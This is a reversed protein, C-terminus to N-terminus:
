EVAKELTRPNSGDLGFRSKIVQNFVGHSFSLIQFKVNQKFNSFRFEFNSVGFEFKSDRFVM